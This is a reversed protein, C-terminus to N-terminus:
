ALSPHAPVSVRPCACVACACARVHLYECACVRVFAFVCVTFESVCAPLRVKTAPTSAYLAAKTYAELQKETAFMKINTSRSLGPMASACNLAKADNSSLGPYTAELWEAYQVPADGGGVIAFLQDTSQLADAMLVFDTQSDGYQSDGYGLEMDCEFTKEKQVSV